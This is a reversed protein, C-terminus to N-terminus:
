KDCIVFDVCKYIVYNYIYKIIDRFRKCLLSDDNKGYSSVYFTIM